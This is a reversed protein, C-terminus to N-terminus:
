VGCGAACLFRRSVVWLDSTNKTSTPRRELADRLGRWQESEVIAQLDQLRLAEGVGPQDVMLTSIGRRALERGIDSGFIM